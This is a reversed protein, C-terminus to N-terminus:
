SIDSAKNRREMSSRQDKEQCKSIIEVIELNFKKGGEQDTM